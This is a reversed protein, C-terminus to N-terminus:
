NVAYSFNYFVYRSTGPTGDSSTYFCAQNQALVGYIIGNNCITATPIPGTSEGNSTSFNGSLAIDGPMNVMSIPLTIYFNASGGGSKQYVILGSVYVTNGIRIYRSSNANQLLATCNGNIATMVPTYTGNAIVGGPITLTTNVTLNNVTETNATLNNIITTTGDFFNNTSGTITNTGSWYTIDGAIPSGTIGITNTGGGAPTAWAGLGNLFHASNGDAKPALGHATTSVNGIVNDTFNSVYLDTSFVNSVTINNTLYIADTQFLGRRSASGDGKLTLTTGTIGSTELTSAVLGEAGPGTNQVKPIVNNSISSLNSTLPNQWTGDGRLFDTTIGDLKILLGHQNISSNATTVDSFNLQSENISGGNTSALSYWNTGQNSWFSSSINAAASNIYFYKQSYTTGNTPNVTGSIITAGGLNLINTAGVISALYDLQSKSLLSTTVNTSADTALALSGAKNLLSLTSTIEFTGIRLQAPSITNHNTDNYIVGLDAAFIRNVLLLLLIPLYKNM